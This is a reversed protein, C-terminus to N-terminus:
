GFFRRAINIIGLALVTSESIILKFRYSVMMDRNYGPAPLITICRRFRKIKAPYPFQSPRSSM